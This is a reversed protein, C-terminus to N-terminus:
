RPQARGHADDAEHGALHPCARLGVARVQDRVREPDRVGARVARPGGARRGAAGPLAPARAPVPLGSEGRAPSGAAGFNDAERVYCGIYFNDAWRDVLAPVASVSRPSDTTATTSRLALLLLDTAWNPPVSVEPWWTSTVARGARDHRPARGSPEHGAYARYSDRDDSTKDALR